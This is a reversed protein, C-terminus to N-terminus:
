PFAWRGFVSRVGEYLRYNRSRTTVSVYSVESAGLDRKFRALGSLGESAGLNYWRVGRECARKLLRMNLANSPRYRGDERRMAASWFFLEDRGVLIVGGAIARGEVEAFWLEVDSGGRACVAQLLRLSITPRPLGWRASAEQLIEYYRAVAESSNRQVCRVGRREAQGAMRRTVGRMGALAGDLGPSCDIVAAGHRRTLGARLVPQAALPWAVFTFRDFARAARQVISTCVDANVADGREDLVCTYAGLPFAAIERLGSRGRSAVAPILYSEGQHEIAIPYPEYKGVADCYALAFAPRAFFTPAPHARDFEEWRDLALRSIV